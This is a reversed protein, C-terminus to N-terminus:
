VERYVTCVLYRLCLLIAGNIWFAVQLNVADSIMGTVAPGWLGGLFFMCFVYVGYSTARQYFPVVEQCVIQQVPIFLYIFLTVVFFLLWSNLLVALVFTVLAAVASIWCL